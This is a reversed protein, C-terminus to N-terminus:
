YILHYFEIFYYIIGKVVYRALKWWSYSDATLNTLARECESEELYRQAGARIL